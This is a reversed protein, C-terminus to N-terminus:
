QTNSSSHINFAVGPTPLLFSFGIRKVFGAAIAKQELLNTSSLSRFKEALTQNEETLIAIKQDLQRMKESSDVVRNAVFIRLVSLGAFLFVLFFVLRRSNKQFHGEEELKLRKM